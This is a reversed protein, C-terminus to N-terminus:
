TTSCLQATLTLIHICFGSLCLLVKVSIDCFNNKYNVLITLSVSVSIASFTHVRISAAQTDRPSESNPFQCILWFNKLNSVCLPCNTLLEIEWHCSSLTKLKIVRVTCLYM